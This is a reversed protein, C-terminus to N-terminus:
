GEEDNRSGLLRAGRIILSAAQESARFRSALLEQDFELFIVRLEKLETCFRRPASLFRQMKFREKSEASVEVVNKKSLAELEEKLRAIGARLNKFKTSGCSECLIPRDECEYQCELTNNDKQILPIAHKECLALSGCQNCALLRSRGKRNLFM